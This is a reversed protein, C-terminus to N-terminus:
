KLNGSQKYITWSNVVIRSSQWNGYSDLFFMLRYNDQRDLYEQDTFGEAEFGKALLAYQTMPIQLVRSGDTNRITLVSNRRAMLRSMKLDAIAIGLGEVAGDARTTGEITGAIGEDTHFPEYNITQDPLIDNESGLTGNAEEITFLFDDVHVDKDMQQLMIRVNNTDKTLPVLYVHDGQNEMDTSDYISVGYATGHYLDYLQERSYHVGGEIEREMRCILEERTTKGIETDAVIFSEDTADNDLGCWAVVTYEGPEIGTLALTYGQMALADGKEEFQFALRDNKDFGYVAVSHVNGRFADVGVMNTDWQFRLAHRTECPELDDYIVSDCSAFLSAAGLMACAVQWNLYNKVNFM